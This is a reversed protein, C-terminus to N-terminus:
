KYTATCADITFKIESGDLEAVDGGVTVTCNSTNPTFEDGLVTVTSDATGAAITLTMPFTITTDSCDVSEADLTYTGVWDSVECSDGGCSLLFCSLSIAFLYNLVKM